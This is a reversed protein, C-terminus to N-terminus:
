TKKENPEIKLNNKQIQEFITVLNKLHAEITNNIVLIDDMYIFCIKGIYNQSFIM